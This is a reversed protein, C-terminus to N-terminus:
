LNKKMWSTVEKSVGYTGWQYNGSVNIVLVKGRDGISNKLETRIEVAEKSTKIFWVREMSKAWYSYSKLKESIKPYDKDSDELEYTIMLSNM